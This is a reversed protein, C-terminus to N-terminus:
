KGCKYPYFKCLCLVRLNSSKIKISIKKKHFSDQHWELVFGAVATYGTHRVVAFRYARLQSSLKREVRRESIWYLPTGLKPFFILCSEKIRVNVQKKCLCELKHHRM